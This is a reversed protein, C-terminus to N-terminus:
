AGKLQIKTSPTASSHEKLQLRTYQGDALSKLHQFLEISTDQAQRWSGGTELTHNLIAASNKEGLMLAALTAGDAADRGGAPIGLAKVQTEHTFRAYRQRARSDKDGDKFDRVNFEHIAATVPKRWLDIGNRRIQLRQVEAAGLKKLAEEMKNFAEIFQWQWASAKEGTFKMVVFTCGDRNLLYMPRTKGQADVYTAPIIANKAAGIKPLSSKASEITRLVRDHRKEFVEAIKLSTTLAQNNEFFVLQKM